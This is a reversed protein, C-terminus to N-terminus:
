DVDPAESEADHRIVLEDNLRKMACAAVIRWFMRDGMFTLAPGPKAAADSVITAHEVISCLVGLDMRSLCESLDADLQDVAAVARNRSRRTANV